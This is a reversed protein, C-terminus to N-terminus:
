ESKIPDESPAASGAEPTVLGSQNELAAVKTELSILKERTRMLVQQQVDFEDRTVLDLRSFIGSLLVRLNKELDKAPSQELIETVKSGIEDLIKKNLM